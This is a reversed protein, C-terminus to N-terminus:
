AAVTALEAHPTEMLQCSPWHAYEIRGDDTEWRLVTGATSGCDVCIPAAPEGTLLQGPLDTSDFTFVYDM